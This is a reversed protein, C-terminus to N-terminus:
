LYIVAKCVERSIKQNWSDFSVNGSVPLFWTRHTAPESLSGDAAPYGQGEQLLSWAPLLIADREHAVFPTSRHTSAQKEQNKELITGHNHTCTLCLYFFSSATWYVIRGIAKRKTKTRIKCDFGRKLKFRNVTYEACRKNQAPTRNAKYSFFFAATHM